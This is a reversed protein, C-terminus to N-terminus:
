NYCRVLTNYLFLISHFEKGASVPTNETRYQQFTEIGTRIPTGALKLMPLGIMIDIMTETMRAYWKPKSM